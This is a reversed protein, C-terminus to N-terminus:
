RYTTRTPPTGHLHAAPKQCPYDLCTHLKPNRPGVPLLSHQGPAPFSRDATRQPWRYPVDGPKAPFQNPQVDGGKKPICSHDPHQRDPDFGPQGARFGGSGASSASKERPWEGQLDKSLGRADAGDHLYFVTQYYAVYPKLFGAQRNVVGSEDSLYAFYTSDMGVPCRENAFPTDTLRQLEPSRTELDYFFVDFNNIPLITDIKQPSLTDSMRNSSFLVGKRGDLVTISADLDDWFDQTIRDTQRNVTRFIFLDSYGKVAASFLMDVPSIFDMSYVRQYDAPLEVREKKEKPKAPNLISLYLLDRKEYLIGLQQNDPHWKVLPYNQDLDQQSNRMGGKMVLKKKGTQLDAVWVKWKGIDNSVWVMRQGDPSLQARFFPLKKKNKIVFQQTEDPLATYLAEEAYRQRFYEMLSDTTRRYGTGLVYLFGADISRNIRTLYLLNSVTGKGFHLSIYYWFAHGALRPHEKALKDFDKYKESALLDRLQNDNDVNWEEGCYALLGNTYWGPLNLLVANQVIEQINSGFLMSNLIVGAVGERIQARLHQHNGDFYVFIKNGVVKTEGARLQFIDEEGINSQKLDTLDIFVLMEIKDTMQHELLQQVAGFDYEAMQLASQAINRADGYWYTDFNATEYHLWDDFQRHYQIRNKGFSTQSTTQACLLAPFGLLFLYIIRM